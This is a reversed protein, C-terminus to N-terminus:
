GTRVEVHYCYWPHCMRLAAKAVGLESMDSDESSGSAPPAVKLKDSRMDVVAAFQTRGSRRELQLLKSAEGVCLRLRQGSTVVNVSRARETSAQSV